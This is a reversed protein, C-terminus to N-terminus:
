MLCMTRVSSETRATTMVMLIMDNSIAAGLLMIVKATIAFNRFNRFCGVYKNMPDTHRASARSAVVVCGKYMVVKSNSELSSCQVRYVMKKTNPHNGANPDYMPRLM